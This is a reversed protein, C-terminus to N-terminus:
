ELRRRLWGAYHRAIAAVRRGESEPDYWAGGSNAPLVSLQPLRSLVEGRRGLVMAEGELYDNAIAEGVGLRNEGGVYPNQSLATVRVVLRPAGPAIRDAFAQALEDQLTRRVVEAFPGFGRARLPGVDVAVASYPGPGISTPQAVTGTEAALVGAVILVCRRVLGPVSVPMSLVTRSRPPGLKAFATLETAESNLKSGARM